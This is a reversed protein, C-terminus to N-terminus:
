RCTPSDRSDDEPTKEGGALAKLAKLITKSKDMVVKFLECDELSIKLGFPTM